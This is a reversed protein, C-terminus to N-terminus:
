DTWRKHKILHELRHTFVEWMLSFINNSSYTGAPVKLEYYYKSKCGCKPKCSEVWMKTHEESYGKDRM